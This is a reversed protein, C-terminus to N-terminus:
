SGAGVRALRAPGGLFPLPTFYGQLSFWFFHLRRKRPQFQM